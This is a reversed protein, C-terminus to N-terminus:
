GRYSDTYQETPQLGSGARRPPLSLAQLDAQTALLANTNHQIMSFVILEQNFITTEQTAILRALRPSPHPISELRDMTGELSSSRQVLSTGYQIEGAALKELFSVYSQSSATSRDSPILEPDRARADSGLLIMSVAVTAVSLFATRPRNIMKDRRRSDLRRRSSLFSARRALDEDRM